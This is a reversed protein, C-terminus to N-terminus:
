RGRQGPHARASRPPMLQGRPRVRRGSDLALAAPNLDPDGAALQEVVECRAGSRRWNREVGWRSPGTPPRGDDVTLIM